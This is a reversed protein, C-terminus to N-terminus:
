QDDISHLGFFVFWLVCLINTKESVGVQNSSLSLLASTWLTFVNKCWAQGGHKCLKFAYSILLKPDLLEELNEYSFKLDDGSPLAEPSLLLVDALMYQLSGELACWPVLEFTSSSMKPMPRLVFSVFMWVRPAHMAKRQSDTAERAKNWGNGLRLTSLTM